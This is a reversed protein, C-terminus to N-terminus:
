SIIATMATVNGDGDRTTLMLPSQVIPVLLAAVRSFTFNGDGDPLQSTCRLGPNAAHEIDFSAIMSIGNQQCIQLIKTMLPEIQGDYIQEKNM